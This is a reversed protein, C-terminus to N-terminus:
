CMDNIATWQGQDGGIYNHGEEEFADRFRTTRAKSAFRDLVAQGYASDSMTTASGHLTWQRWEECLAIDFDEDSVASPHPPESREVRRLASPCLEDLDAVTRKEMLTVDAGVGGGAMALWCQVHMSSGDDAIKSAKADDRTRFIWCYRENDPRKGDQACATAAHSFITGQAAVAYVNTQNGSRTSKFPTWPTETATETVTTPGDTPEVQEVVTTPGDASEAAAGTHSVGSDTGVAAVGVGVGIGVAIGALVMGLSHREIWSRLARLEKDWWTRGM